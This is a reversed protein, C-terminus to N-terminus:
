SAENSPDSEVGFASTATLVWRHTGLSLNTIVFTLEAHPSLNTKTAVAMWGTPWVNTTATYYLTYATVDPSESPDWVLQVEASISNLALLLLGFFTIIAIRKRVMKMRRGGRICIQHLNSPRSQSDRRSFPWKLFPPARHSIRM